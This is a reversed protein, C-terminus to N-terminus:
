GYTEECDGTHAGGPNVGGCVNAMTDLLSGYPTGSYLTDCAAMDGGVCADLQSSQDATMTSGTPSGPSSGFDDVCSLGHDTNPDRNGCSEAFGELETDVPGDSWVDDCDAMNGDSCSVMLNAIRRASEEPVTNTVTAPTSSSTTGGSSSTTSGESSTSTSERTTTTDDDDDGGGGSFAVVLGIIVAVALVGALVAYLAGRSGSGSPPAGYGGSPPGSPPYGGSSVGGQAYGGSPTGYTGTSGPAYASPGSSSWSPTTSPMAPPAGGPPNSPPGSPPPGSPPGPPGPPRPPGPPAPPAYPGGPASAGIPQGPAPPAPAGPAGMGMAAGAAGGLLGGAAAGAAAAGAAGPSTDEPVHAVQSRDAADAVDQGAAIVAAGLAVSYKPHADVAVPRGLESAVLEAVLPVRSSGGVLLVTSVDNTAINASRLARSLATMSADLAPRVMQELESRTLRVETQINPLLVPITVETDTSLAEKADICEFRLRAVAALATQDDPDLQEVAGDLATVVHQFVAEDFDVGGLREVGQPEGLIDWGTDTKRLLAVDFTGGGLDYVAIISGREVREQSAYHIAAAEPETVTAVRDLDARTIAQHLLDTKYDGWNAPYTVAIGTPPGGETESAKDVVWRLVKATLADASYPTGGIVIPTPDGFRRKFERAVRHPEVAARREAAEGVLMSGDDRLLVVSPITPARNGLGTIEVHGDRWVAAATYTTGLDVGLYYAM